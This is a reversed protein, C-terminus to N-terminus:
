LHEELEEWAAQASQPREAPDKALLRRVWDAIPAPVEPPLPPPPEQVHALLIAMPERNGFPVTGSFLEYAIVGTAYLDTWPGVPSGMAQEPSMYAPTGITAGTATRFAATEGDILAKAIGFDTIKVHGDDIVM